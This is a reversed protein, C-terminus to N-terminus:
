PATKENLERDYRNKNEAWWNKAKGYSDFEESVFLRIVSNFEERCEPDKDKLGEILIEMVNHSPIDIVLYPVKKKIDPYISKVAEAAISEKVDSDRNTIASFASDRIQESNDSLGKLLLKAAEPTDIRDLSTIAALRVDAKSISPLADNSDFDELLSAAALRVDGDPDKLAECIIDLVRKDIILSLSDILDIKEKKTRCNQFNREANGIAEDPNGRKEPNGSKPTAASKDPTKGPAAPTPLSSVTTMEQKKPTSGNWTNSKKLLIKALLVGAIVILCISICYLFSKMKFEQQENLAM